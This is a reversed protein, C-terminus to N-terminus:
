YFLQSEWHSSSRKEIKCWNPTACFFSLWEPTSSCSSPMIKPHVPQVAFKITSLFCWNFWFVKNETWLSDLKSLWLLTLNSALQRQIHMIRTLYLFVNVRCMYKLISFKTKSCNRRNGYYGTLLWWNEITVRCPCFALFQKYYIEKKRELKAVQGRNKRSEKEM